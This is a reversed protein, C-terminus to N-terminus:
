ILDNNKHYKNVIEQLFAMIGELQDCKYFKRYSEYSRNNRRAFTWADRPIIDILFWGDSLKRISVEKGFYTGGYTLCLDNNDYIKYEIEKHSKWLDFIKYLKTLEYKNFEEFNYDRLLIQSEVLTIEKFYDDFNISENFKKLHKM